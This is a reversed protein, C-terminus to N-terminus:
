AAKPLEFIQTEEDIDKKRRSSEIEQIKAFVKECAILKKRLAERSIGMAKAARSKNGKHRKIESNIMEREVMAIRDKLDLTHDNVFPIESSIRPNMPKKLIPLISDDVETIVHNKPNFRVLRAIATMLETTNGPWEYEVLSDRIEDSFVKQLFGQDKCEKALFYDILEQIDKKRNRLPEIKVINQNCFEYFEPILNGEAVLEDLDISSTFFPRVDPNEDKVPNYLKEVLRQQVIKSLKGVERFCISGGSCKEIWGVNENSGFLISIIEEEGMSLCDVMEFENIGRAGEAHLIRTYLSKGVGNEGILTIPTAIDKLKLISRRLNSTHQSKGIWVIDRSCPASFRRILSKKSVPNYQSFFCSYVLSLLKMVKEDEETFRDQNRKNAVQLVGIIKDERNTIPNCIVSKTKVGLKKDIKDFFQIKSHSSDINLSVGTTFVSGAVGKRYDFRLHKKSIGVSHSAELQNTETNILFVVARQSNLIRSTEELMSDIFGEQSAFNTIDKFLSLMLSFMEFGETLDSYSESLALNRLSDKLREQGFHNILQGLFRSMKDRDEADDIEAGYSMTPDDIHGSFARVIHASIDFRLRRFNISITVSDGISLKEQSKFGVGTISVDTIQVDRLFEGREGYPDDHEVTFQIDDSSEVPIRFSKFFRFESLSRIM